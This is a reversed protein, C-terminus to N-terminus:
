NRLILLLNVIFQAFQDDPIRGNVPRLQLALALIQQNRAEADFLFRDTPQVSLIAQQTRPGVVGDATLGRSSQFRQVAQLTAQDFIGQPTGAFLGICQLFEQLRTVQEGTMGLRLTQTIVVPCSRAPPVAPPTNEPSAVPAPTQVVPTPAPLAPSPVGGGGGGGGGGSQRPPAPPAPPPVVVPESEDAEQENDSDDADGPNNDDADDPTDGDDADDPTDGDDIDDDIPDALRANEFDDIAQGLALFVDLIDQDSSQADTIILGLTDVTDGFIDRAGQAYLGADADTETAIFLAQADRLRSGVLSKLANARRGTITHDVLAPRVDGFDLIRSRVDGFTAEPAYAWLLAAIGAVHPAAMSTGSAFAYQNGIITSAINTGPAAIHVSTAGFNSFDALADLQDSAAVAIIHDLDYSAPYLPAVDNSQGSNGAAAIVLGGAARFRELADYEAQSFHPGGFSANIIHAGNHRAFDIAKVVTIVDLNFRIAMIRAHPAVGVVGQGNNGVAALTGAVHTGHSNGVPLPTTDNDVFDYGHVCDGLPIEVHSVCLTGDWMNAALDPHTYDVGSDIVAVVIGAGAGNTISWAEPIDIDADVTGVVMGYDGDIVQGANHMGWLLGRFPDNTPITQIDRRYNPEAYLVAPDQQLLAIKEPVSANDTIRVLALNHEPVSTRVELSKSANRHELVAHGLPARLNLMDDRYRVIIEAPM